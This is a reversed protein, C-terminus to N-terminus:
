TGEPVRNNMKYVVEALEPRRLRELEFGLGNGGDSMDKGWMPRKSNDSESKTRM